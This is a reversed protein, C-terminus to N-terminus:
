VFSIHVTDTKKPCNIFNFRFLVTDDALAEIVCLFAVMLHPLLHVRQTFLSSTQVADVLSGHIDLLLCVAEQIFGLTPDFLQLTLACFVCLYHVPHEYLRQGHGHSIFVWVVTPLHLCRYM